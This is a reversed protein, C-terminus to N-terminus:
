NQCMLIAEHVSFLLSKYWWIICYIGILHIHWTWYLNLEILLMKAYHQNGCFNIEFIQNVTFYKCHFHMSWNLISIAVFHFLQKSIYVNCIVYIYIYICICHHGFNNSCRFINIKKAELVHNWKMINMFCASPQESCLLYWIFHTM